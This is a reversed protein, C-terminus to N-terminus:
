CDYRIKRFAILSDVQLIMPYKGGLLEDVAQDVGPWPKPHPGDAHLGDESPLIMHKQYDHVAIIGGSKVIPLWAEIDSKCGEYSHEGDVFVMNVSEAKSNRGIVKSDGCFQFWHNELLHYLGAAHIVEREAYLCGFPSSEDQIDVTILTLDDRSELFALGSTGSGAGINVIVSFPPLMLALAKLAPLEAPFLYKFASRVSESTTM